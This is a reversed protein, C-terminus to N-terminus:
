LIKQLNLALALNGDVKLKGTMFAMQPTLERAMLKELTEKKLRLTCDAQADDESLVPPQRTADLFLRGGETLELKIAGTLGKAESLKAVIRAKIEEFEM